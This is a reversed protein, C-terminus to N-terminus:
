QTLTLSYPGSEGASYSTVMLEYWGEVPLEDEIRTETTSGEFDDVRIEEGTPTVAILFPDFAQSTLIASVYQGEYGYFRYQDVFEGSRLTNDGQGLVGSVSTPIGLVQAGTQQPPSVNNSTQNEAIVPPPNQIQNSQDTQFQQNSNDGRPWFVAVLIFLLLIGGGIFVGRPIGSGGAKGTGVVDDLRIIVRKEEGSKLDVESERIEGSEGRASVKHPGPPLMFTRAEGKTLQAVEEGDILIAANKRATLVLRATPATSGSDSDSDPTSPPPMPAAQPAADLVTEAVPTPPPASPPAPPPTPTSVPIPAPPPFPAGSPTSTAPAPPPFPTSSPSDVVLLTEPPVEDVMQTEVAEEMGIAAQLETYFADVTQTRDEPKPALARSLVDSLEPSVRIEIEHAPRLQDVENREPSEPPRVGTVARYFTAAAAYVDTWTGQNGKRYYQEFPAYGPTLVASLSQSEEGFTIRAAGFDILIVGGEDMLYINQPKIDRHLFGAAHVSRLGDLVPLIIRGAEEPTIRGGAQGIHQALTKGELFPMVLYGTGNDRFFALIRVINPHNFKALTQGEKLFANLGNEFINADKDGHPQVTARDTGRGAVTTPLYEKIAVPMQLAQDLAAYTIGFGGKGLVRGIAYNGNLIRRSELALPSREGSDTFIDVM